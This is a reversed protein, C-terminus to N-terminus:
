LGLEYRVMFNKPNYSHTSMSPWSFRLQVQIFITLSLSSFQVQISVNQFVTITYSKSSKDKNGSQLDTQNLSSLSM